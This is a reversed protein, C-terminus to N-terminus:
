AAGRLARRQEDRARADLVHEWWGPSRDTPVYVREVRFDDAIIQRVRQRTIGLAAAIEVQPWGLAVGITVGLRRWAASGNADSAWPRTAHPKVVRLGRRRMRLLATSVGLRAAMEEDTERSSLDGVSLAIRDSRPAVLGRQERWSMVTSYSVGQERAAEAVTRGRLYDASPVTRRRM